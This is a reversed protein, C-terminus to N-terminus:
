VRGPNLDWVHSSVAAALDIPSTARIALTRELLMEHAVGKRDFTAPTAGDRNMAPARQFRRRAIWQAIPPDGHPRHTTHDPRIVQPAPSTCADGVSDIQQPTSLDAEEISTRVPPTM